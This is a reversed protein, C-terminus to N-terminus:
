PARARSWLHFILGLVLCPAALVAAAAVGGVFGFGIGSALIDLIAAQLYGGVQARVLAQSMGTYASFLAAILSLAAWLKFVITDKM